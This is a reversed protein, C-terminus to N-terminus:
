ERYHQAAIEEPTAGARLLAQIDRAYTDGDNAVWEVLHAYYTDWDGYPMAYTASGPTRAQRWEDIMGFYVFNKPDIESAAQQSTPDTYSYQYYIDKVMGDEATFLRTLGDSM